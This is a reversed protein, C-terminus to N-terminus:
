SLHGTLFNIRFFLLLLGLGVGLCFEAGAEMEREKFELSCSATKLVWLAKGGSGWLCLGLGFVGRRCVGLIETLKSLVFMWIECSFTSRIMAATIAACTCADRPPLEKAFFALAFRATDQLISISRGSIVEFSDLLIPSNIM